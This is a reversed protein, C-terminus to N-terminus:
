RSRGENSTGKWSPKFHFLTKNMETGAEERTPFLGESNKTFVSQNKKISVLQKGRQFHWGLEIYFLRILKM